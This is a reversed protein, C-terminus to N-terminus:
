RAKRQKVFMLGLVSMFLMMSSPEPVNVQVSAGYISQVTLIDDAHLGNIVGDYQAHMVADDNDSHGLGIAHGIEHVAVSFIDVFAGNINWNEETDFHIDGGLNSGDPYYAHALVGSLGDFLHGGIRIDTNSPAGANQGGDLEMKFTIDAVSSWLNFASEIETLFGTPMFSSLSSVTCPSPEFTGACSVGSPMLSWTVEGGSTGMTSDGWKHGSILGANSSFPLLLMMILSAAQIVYKINRM